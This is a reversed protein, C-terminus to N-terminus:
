VDAKGGGGRFVNRKRYLEIYLANIFSYLACLTTPFEVGAM